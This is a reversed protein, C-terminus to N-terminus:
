KRAGREGRGGWGGNKNVTMAAFALHRVGGVPVALNEELRAPLLCTIKRWAVYPRLPASTVDWKRGVASAPALATGKTEPVAPSASALFPPVHLLPLRLDLKLLM